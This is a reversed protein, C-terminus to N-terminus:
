CETEPDQTDLERKQSNQEGYRPGGTYDALRLEEPLFNSYAELFCVSHFSSLRDVPTQVAHLVSAQVEVTATEQRISNDSEERKAVEVCARFFTTATGQCEPTSAGSDRLSLIHQEGVTYGGLLAANNGHDPTSHQILVPSITTETQEEVESTIAAVPMEAGPVQSISKFPTVPKVVSQGCHKCTTGHERVLSDEERASTVLDGVRPCAAVINWSMILVKIYTDNRQMAHRGKILGFDVPM